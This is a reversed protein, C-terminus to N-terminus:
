ACGEGGPLWPCSQGLASFHGGAAAAPPCRRSSRSPASGETWTDWIANGLAARMTYKSRGTWCSTAAAVASMAKDASAFTKTEGVKKGAADLKTLQYTEEAKAPLYYNDFAARDEASLAEYAKEPDASSNLKSFVEAASSPQFM